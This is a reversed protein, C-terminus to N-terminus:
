KRAVEYNEVFWDVSKQIGEDISKFKYDPLHKRLKKNCATKKFQGDAKDSDFKVEGEFKMAKAVSLAVDKISVEAAEDVSLTIPEPSHYERMVWVTLEALDLSYIFQRLPTGSGWITFPTNDKKANYCKHILGPIVHGNQISFNDHPGYINTPIISTFNCGYEEAYARSMTDILRKAYAYGENSPHPPGDHLMTEDIPYKTKDPFICTSLFSVLKKVKNIRCNEMINDNIIVNERYFEVKQAMNAFLGGVKAALHIVHTPKYKEFIADTAKRDRLDGDKSSLFVWTENPKANKEDKVFMEIAKGVLGSGGTVMVVSKEDDGGNEGKQKKPPPESM